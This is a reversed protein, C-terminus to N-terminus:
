FKTFWEDIRMIYARAVKWLLINSSPSIFFPMYYRRPTYYMNQTPMTMDMLINNKTFYYCWLFKSHRYYLYQQLSHSFINQFKCLTPIAIIHTETDRWYISEAWHLTRTHFIFHAALEIDGLTMHFYVHWRASGLTARAASLHLSSLSIHLLFTTNCRWYIYWRM